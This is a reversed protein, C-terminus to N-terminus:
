GRDKLPTLQHDFTQNGWLATPTMAKQLRVVKRDSRRTRNNGAPRSKEECLNLVARNGLFPPEKTKLGANTSDDPVESRGVKVRDLDETLPLGVTKMKRSWPHHRTGEKCHPM